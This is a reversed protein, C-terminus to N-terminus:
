AFLIESFAPFYRYLDAYRQVDGDPVGPAHLKRSSRNPLQSNLHRIEKATLCPAKLSCPEPGSRSFPLTEFGCALYRQEEDARYLVGGVTLMQAGDKYHFNFVQRYQLKEKAPLMANRITLQEAIVNHIVERFVKALEQGRLVAGSTGAPLKEGLLDNAIRLRYDALDFPRGTEKEYLDRGEQPPEADPQANATVVLM